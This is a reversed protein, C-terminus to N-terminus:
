RLGSQLKSVLMQQEFTAILCSGDPNRWVFTTYPGSSSTEQGVLAYDTLADIEAVMWGAKIRQYHAMTLRSRERQEAEIRRSEQQFRMKLEDTVRDAARTRESEIRHSYMPGGVGVAIAAVIVLIWTLPSDM